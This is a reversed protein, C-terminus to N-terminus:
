LICHMRHPVNKRMSCMGDEQASQMTKFVNYEQSQSMDDQVSQIRNLEINEVLCMTDLM